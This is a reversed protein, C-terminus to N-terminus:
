RGRPRGQPGPLGPSPAPHSRARASLAGDRRDPAELHPSPPPPNFRPRNSIVNYTITDLGRTVSGRTGPRCHAQLDGDDAAAARVGGLEDVTERTAGLPEREVLQHQVVDGGLAEVDDTPERTPHEVM